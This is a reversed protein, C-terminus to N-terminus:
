GKRMGAKGNHRGWGIGARIRFEKIGNTRVICTKTKTVTGTAPEEITGVLIAHLRHLEIRMGPLLLGIVDTYRRM